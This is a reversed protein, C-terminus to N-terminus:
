MAAIRGGERCATDRSSQLGVWIAVMDDVGEATGQDHLVNARLLLSEEGPVCVADGAHGARGRPGVKGRALDRVHPELSVDDHPLKCLPGEVASQAQVLDPHLGYGEGGVVLEQRGQSPLVVVPVTGTAQVAGPTPASDSTDRGERQRLTTMQSMAPFSATHPLWAAMVLAPGTYARVKQRFLSSTKMVPPSHTGAVGVGSPWLGTLTAGNGQLTVSRTHSNFGWLRCTVGVSQLRPWSLRMTLHM